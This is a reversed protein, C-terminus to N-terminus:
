IKSNGVCHRLIRFMSKDIKKLHNCGRSLAVYAVMNVMKPHAPEGSRAM